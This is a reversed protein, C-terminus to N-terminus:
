VAVIIIGVLLLPLMQYYYLAMMDWFKIAWGVTPAIAVVFLVPYFWSGRKRIANYVTYLFPIGTVALLPVISAADKLINKLYAIM